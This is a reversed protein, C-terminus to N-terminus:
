PGAPSPRPHNRLFVDTGMTRTARRGTAAATVSVEIRVVEAASSTPIGAADFYRFDLREIAGALNTVAAGLRRELERQAADRRFTVVYAQGPRRPNHPSVRVTIRDPCLGGCLPDTMVEEGWRLEEAMRDIAVRLSQQSELQRETMAMGDFTLRITGFIGVLALGLLGSAVLVEILTIGDRVRM